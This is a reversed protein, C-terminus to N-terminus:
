PHLHNLIMIKAKVQKCAHPLYSSIPRAIRNKKVLKGSTTFILKEYANLCTQNQNTKHQKFYCTSILQERGLMISFCNAKQNTLGSQKSCQTNCTLVSLVITNYLNIVGRHAYIHSYISYFTHKTESIQGALKTKLSLLILLLHSKM